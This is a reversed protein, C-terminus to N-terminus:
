FGGGCIVCDSGRDEGGSARMAEMIEEMTRAHLIAFKSEDLLGEIDIEPSELKTGAVRMIYAASANFTQKFCYALYCALKGEYSKVDELVILHHIFWGYAQSAESQLERSQLFSILEPSSPTKERLM